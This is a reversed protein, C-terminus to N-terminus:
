YSFIKVYHHSHFVDTKKQLPLVTRGSAAAHEHAEDVDNTTAIVEATTADLRDTSVLRFLHLRTFVFFRLIRNAM